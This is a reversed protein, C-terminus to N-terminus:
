KLRKIDDAVKQFKESLKMNPWSNAMHELSEIILEYEDRDCLIQIMRASEDPSTTTSEGKFKVARIQETFDSFREVGENIRSCLASFHSLKLDDSDLDEGETITLLSQAFNFLNLYNTELELYQSESHQLMPYPM